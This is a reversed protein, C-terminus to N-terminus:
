QEPPVWYHRYPAGKRWVRNCNWGLERLALGLDQPTARLQRALHEMFYHPARAESALSGYWQTIRGKLKARPDISASAAKAARMARHEAIEHKLREIYHEGYM